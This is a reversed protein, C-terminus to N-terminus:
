AWRELCDLFFAVWYGIPFFHPMTQLCYLALLLVHFRLSLLIGRLVTIFNTSLIGTRSSISSENKWQSCSSIPNGQPSFLTVMDYANNLVDAQRLSGNRTRWFLVPQLPDKSEMRQDDMKHPHQHSNACCYITVKAQPPLSFDNPFHYEHKKKHDGIYYGEMLFSHYLSPNAVEIIEELIDIKSIYPRSLAGLCLGVVNACSSFDIARRRTSM